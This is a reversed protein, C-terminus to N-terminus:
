GELKLSARLGAELDTYLFEFGENRIATGVVRRSFLLEASFGGLVMKAVVAPLPLVSPRKLIGALTSAFEKQRIPEPVVANYVAAPQEKELLFAIMRCLDDRHVWPWWQEGKGIPGGLGFRFAPLMSGLAGGSRDLVLGIRLSVVQIGLNRAKGAEEEWDVCVEPMFGSGPSSDETLTEDGRDGYIGIASACILTSPPSDLKKLANVLNRTGLVRSQQIRCQKAETWLGVVPEGSLHVVAEVGDFAQLPPEEEEPHWGFSNSLEPVKASASAGTRSLGVLLHGEDVLIKGFRRGVFGTVGSVLIRM